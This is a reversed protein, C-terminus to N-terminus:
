QGSVIGGDHLQASADQRPFPVIARESRLDERAQGKLEGLDGLRPDYQQM